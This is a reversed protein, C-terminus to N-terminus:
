SCEFLTDRTHIVEHSLLGSKQSFCKGCKSCEYPKEGTHVRQHVVLTTKQSFCKGCEFCTFPREGAHIRQHKLLGSKHFFCKSCESCSFPKEGMHIRQHRDLKSKERFCKGCQPCSFPKEGTHIRQHTVLQFKEHFCKGCQTCAFPKEGTHIRQHRVLHYKQSFYKGCDSCAFAKALNIAVSKRINKRPTNVQISEQYLKTVGNDSILHQGSTNKHMSGYEGINISTEEEKVYCHSRVDTNDEQGICSFPFMSPGAFPNSHIEMQQVGREDREDEGEEKVSVTCLIEDHLGESINVPIAEVKIQLHDTVKQKEQESLMSVTSHKGSSYGIRHNDCVEQELAEQHNRVCLDETQEANLASDAVEGSSRNAPFRLTRPTQQSEMMMDKYFDKQGEADWAELFFCVKDYTDSAEGSLQHNSSHPSNKKVITYEEGTLLYIIQLAHNVIRETMKEMKTKDRHMVSTILSQLPSVSIQGCGFHRFYLRLWTIQTTIDGRVLIPLQTRCEYPKKRTHIRQHKALVYKDCFCKGCQPCPFTKQGSHIKEHMVLTTKRTFSKDCQSCTFPKEGTHLRQHMNLSSQKKFCKGCQSCSFPNEGTHSRQHQVLSGKHGFCKGCQSCIFPKEGTHIRQHVILNSQKSFCKGCQPCAFPKEGTHLKQHTILNSQRSFCKGCQPCSFPKVGPQGKEQQVLEPKNIISTEKGTFSFDKAINGNQGTSNVNIAGQNLQTINNTGIVFYIPSYPTHHQGPPNMDMSEDLCLDSEIEVQQIDNEDEEAEGEGNTVTCLSEDYPGESFIVSNDEEKFQEHGREDPEETQEFKSFYLPKLDSPGAKSPDSNIAVHENGKKEKEHEAEEKFLVPHVNEGLLDASCRKAPIGLSRLTQHNEDKVKTHKVINCEGTQQHINSHPSNKKVITYEEETLLYIIELTHSLIRESMKKAKNMHITIPSNILHQLLSNEGTLLYIIELTHNLVKETVKRKDKTMTPSNILHKGNLQHINSHPSNKKVITYEEGTLLYIIEWTSNLIRESRKKNMEIMLASKTLHQLLSVEGTLMRVIELSHNLVSETMKKDKYM